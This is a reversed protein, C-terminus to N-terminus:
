EGSLNHSYYFAAQEQHIQIFKEKGGFWELVEERKLLTHSQSIIAKYSSWHYKTFDKMIGHKLPNAHIYIILQTFHFDDKVEICRFPNNFMGGKRHYVKNFSRVYSVFLYNFQTEILEDFDFVAVNELFKKYTITLGEKPLAKLHSEIESVSKPKVLCHIHNNLLCYAYIDAFGPIYRAFRKLFFSKNEDNTFLNIGDVAKAIVHYFKEPEFNSHLNIPSFMKLSLM